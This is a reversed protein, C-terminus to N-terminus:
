SVSTAVHEEAVTVLNAQWLRGIEYQAPRIVELYLEPVSVGAALGEDFL